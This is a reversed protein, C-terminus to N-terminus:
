APLAWTAFSGSHPRFPEHGESEPSVSQPQHRPHLAPPLAPCLHRPQRQTRRHPREHLVARQLAYLPCRPRIRETELGDIACVAAIQDKTMERALVVRSLGLDRAALAGDTNHISMQTSAHVPLDPAVSRVMQLVGLDQVLVADIGITSALTVVDAAAPFERDFLLTNLTLYVKVGRAHCYRVANRFEEETFNKANRRANFDGYGLYVADAGNQM